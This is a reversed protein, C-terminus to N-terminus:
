LKEEAHMLPRAIVLVGLFIMGVGAWLRPPITEHLFLHSATPVMVHVVSILPFAISLPVFRLVYLWAVLSTIYSIIGIWTWGSALPGMFGLVGHTIATDAVGRAGKALLVEGATDLLASVLILLYPNLLWARLQRRPTITTASLQTM